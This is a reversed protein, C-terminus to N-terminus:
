RVIRLSVRRFGSLFSRIQLFFLRYETELDQGFIRQRGDPICETRLTSAIQSAFVM